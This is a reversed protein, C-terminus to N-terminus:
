LFAVIIFDSTYHQSTWLHQLYYIHVLNSYVSVYALTHDCESLVLLAFSTRLYRLLIFGHNWRCLLWVEKCKCNKARNPDRSIYCMVCSKVVTYWKVVCRWSTDTVAVFYYVFLQVIFACTCTCIQILVIREQMCHIAVYVTWTLM